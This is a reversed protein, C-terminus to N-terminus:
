RKNNKIVANATILATMLYLYLMRVLCFLFDYGFCSFRSEAFVWLM